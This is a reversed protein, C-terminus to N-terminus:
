IEEAKPCEFFLHWESEDAGDCMSCTGSCQVHRLRLNSRYPLVDRLFRWLLLRVKHHVKLKWELNWNGAIQMDTTDILENM